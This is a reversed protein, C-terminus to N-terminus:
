EEDVRVGQEEEEHYEWGIEDLIQLVKQGVSDFIEHLGEDLSEAKIFFDEATHNYKKSIEDLTQIFYYEYNDDFQFEETEIMNIALETSLEDSIQEYVEDTMVRRGCAALALILCFLVLIKMKLM